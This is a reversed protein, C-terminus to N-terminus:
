QVSRLEDCQLAVIAHIAIKIGRGPHEAIGIAPRPNEQVGFPRGKIRLPPRQHDFADTIAITDRGSRRGPVCGQSMLGIPENAQVHDPLNVGRNRRVTSARLLPETTPALTKATIRTVRNQGRHLSWRPSQATRISPSFAPRAGRPAGVSKSTEGPLCVM